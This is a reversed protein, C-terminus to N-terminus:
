SCPCQQVANTPVKWSSRGSLADLSDTLVAVLAAELLPVRWSDLTKGSVLSLEPTHTYVLPNTSTNTSYLIVTTSSGDRQPTM